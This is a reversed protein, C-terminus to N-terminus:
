LTMREYPLFHAAFVSCTKRKGRPHELIYKRTRAETKDEEPFKLTYLHNTQRKIFQKQRNGKIHRKILM